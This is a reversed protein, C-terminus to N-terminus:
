KQEVKGVKQNFESIFARVPLYTANSAIEFKSLKMKELISKGNSTNNLSLFVKLIKEILVSEMNERAMISNNPLSDTEALISLHNNIELNKAKLDNWAMTWTVGVDSKKYLVSYMASEQSGVYKTIIDTHPSIGNKFLFYMPLMTAALASQAPFAVVKGKLDKINKIDSDKRVLIIGRFLYDDSMKAFVKYGQDIASLTQYPNPLLLDFNRGLIKQEYSPYDTSSELEFQYEPIEENLIKVIPGFTEFLKEPKYLPHIGLKLIKNQKSGAVKSYTPEYSLETKQHCGNFTLATFILLVINKM